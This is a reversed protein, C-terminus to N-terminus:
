QSFRRDNSDGQTLEHLYTNQYMQMLAYFDNFTKVPLQTKIHNEAEQMSALTPYISKFNAM